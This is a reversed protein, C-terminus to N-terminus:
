EWKRFNEPNKDGTYYWQKRNPDWRAGLAKAEDKQEFPCNIYHKESKLRNLEAQKAVQAENEEYELADWVADDYADQLDEGEAGLIEEWDIGM